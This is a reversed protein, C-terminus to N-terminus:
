RIYNNYQAMYEGAILTNIAKTTNFDLNIKQKQVFEGAVLNLLYRNFFPENDLINKNNQLQEDTQKKVIMLAEHLQLERASIGKNEQLRKHIRAYKEDHEYKAKLLNNQRNL